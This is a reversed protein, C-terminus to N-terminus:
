KRIEYELNFIYPELREIVWPAEEYTELVNLINQYFEIPRNRIHNKTACFHGSPSFLISNPCNDTFFMNWFKEIDLGNHHPNGFKDCFVKGFQTSFFWCGGFSQTCTSNLANETGNIIDLYNHVHDKFYDQSMFTYESLNDYNNVIHYFFTHVDRGVNNEIYIENELNLNNGKRYVTVKIDENLYRTWNTYDRNYASIIVEKM